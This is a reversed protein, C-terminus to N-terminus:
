ERRRLSKKRGATGPEVRNAQARERSGTFRVGSRIRLRWSLLMVSTNRSRSLTYGEVSEFLLKQQTM